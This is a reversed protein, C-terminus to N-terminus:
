VGLPFLELTWSSTSCARANKPYKKLLLDASKVSASYKKDEYQQFVQALLPADKPAVYQPDKTPDVQAATATKIPPASKGRANKGVRPPPPM